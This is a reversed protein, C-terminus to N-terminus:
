EASLRVFHHKLAEPIDGIPQTKHAKLIGAQTRLMGVIALGQGLIPSLPTAWHQKDEMAVFSAEQEPQGPLFVRGDNKTNSVSESLQLTTSHAMVPYQAVGRPPLKVTLRADGRQHHFVNPNRKVAVRKGRVKEAVRDMEPTNFPREEEHLALFANYEPETLEAVEETAFRRM